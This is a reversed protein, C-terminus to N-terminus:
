ETCSRSCQVQVTQLWLQSVSSGRTASSNTFCPKEHCPRQIGAARVARVAEVARVTGVAQLTGESSESGEGGVAWM